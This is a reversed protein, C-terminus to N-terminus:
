QSSRPQEHYYIVRLGQSYPFRDPCALGLQENLRTVAPAQSGFQESISITGPLIISRYASVRSYLRPHAQSTLSKRVKLLQGAMLSRPDAIGNDAALLTGNRSNGTIQQAIGALTEDINVFYFNYDPHELVPQPAPQQAAAPRQPMSQQLAPHQPAFQPSIHQKPAAKLREELQAAYSRQATLASALGQNQKAVFQLQQELTREQRGTYQSVVATGKEMGQRIFLRSEDLTSCQYWLLGSAAALVATRPHKAIVAAGSLYVRSTAYAFALFPAAAIGLLCGGATKGTGM